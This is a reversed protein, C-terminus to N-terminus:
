QGPVVTRLLHTLFEIQTNLESSTLKDVIIPPYTLAADEALKILQNLYCRQLAITARSAGLSLLNSPM